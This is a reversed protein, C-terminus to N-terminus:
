IPLHIVRNPFEEPESCALLIAIEEIASGIAMEKPVIVVGPLSEGAELREYSFRTMTNVDHTLIVRNNAAARDLIQPDDQRSVETEQVLLYDLSPLRRKLGRLIRHNFNEDVLLRVM